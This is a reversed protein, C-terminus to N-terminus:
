SLFTPYIEKNKKQASSVRKQNSLNLFRWLPFPISVVDRRGNTWDLIPPRLREATIGNRTAPERGKAKSENERSNHVYYIRLCLYVDKVSLLDLVLM